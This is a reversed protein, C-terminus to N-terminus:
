IGIGSKSRQTHMVPQVESRVCSSPRHGHHPAQRGDGFTLTQSRQVHLHYYHLHSLREGANTPATREALISQEDASKSRLAEYHAMVQGTGYM